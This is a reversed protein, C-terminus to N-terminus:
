TVIIAMKGMDYFVASNKIVCNEGFFVKAPMYYVFDKVRDVGEVVINDM